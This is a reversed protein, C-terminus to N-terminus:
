GSFVCYNEFMFCIIYYVDTTDQKIIM